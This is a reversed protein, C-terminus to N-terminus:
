HPPMRAGHSLGDERRIGSRGEAGRAGEAEGAAGIEAMRQSDEAADAGRRSTEPTHALGLRSKASRSSKRRRKRDHARSDQQRPRSSTREALEQRCSRAGRSTGCATRLATRGPRFSEASSAVPKTDVRLPGCLRLSRALLRLQLSQLWPCDYRRRPHLIRHLISAM